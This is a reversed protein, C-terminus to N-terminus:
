VKGSGAERRKCRWPWRGGSGGGFGLVCHTHGGKMVKAWKSDMFGESYNHITAHSEYAHAM